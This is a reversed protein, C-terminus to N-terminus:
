SGEDLVFGSHDHEGEDIDGEDISTDLRSMLSTLDFDPRLSSHATYQNSKLPLGFARLMYRENLTAEVNGVFTEKDIASGPCTKGTHNIERHFRIAKRPNLGFKLVIAATVVWAARQQEGGFQDAGEDFLGIMEFMFVSRSNYGLASAPARNWSRGSWITGEPDITVHQAIDSYKLSRTHYNHMAEVCALGGKKNFYSHDPTDTCHVDILVKKVAWSYSSVAAEFESLSMSEFPRPM